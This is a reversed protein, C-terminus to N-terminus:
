PAEGAAAFAVTGLCMWQPAGQRALSSVDVCIQSIPHNSPYALSEAGVKRGDLSVPHLEGNPDYPTLPVEEGEANRGVVAVSELDIVTERDCRNAFQYALVPGIPLDARRHIAIDLCGATTREGIFDNRPAVFSGPKYPAVCGVLACLLLAKRM